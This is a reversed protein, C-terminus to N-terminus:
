GDSSEKRLRAIMRRVDSHMLEFGGVTNLDALLELENAVKNREARRGVEANREALAVLEDLAATWQAMVTADKAFQANELFAGLEAATRKVPAAAVTTAAAEQLRRMAALVPHVGDQTYDGEICYRSELVSLLAVRRQDARTRERRIDQTLSARGSEYAERLRHQVADLARDVDGRWTPKHPRTAFADLAKQRDDSNWECV